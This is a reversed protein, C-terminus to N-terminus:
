YPNKPFPLLIQSDHSNNRHSLRAVETQHPPSSHDSPKPSPKTSMKLYKLPKGANHDNPKSVQPSLSFRVPKVSLDSSTPTKKEKKKGFNFPTCKSNSM